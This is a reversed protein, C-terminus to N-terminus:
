TNVLGLKQIKNQTKKNCFKYAKKSPGGIKIYLQELLGLCNNKALENFVLVATMPQLKDHKCDKCKPVIDDLRKRTSGNVFRYAKRAPHGSECFLRRFIKPKTNSKAFMEFIKVLLNTGIM